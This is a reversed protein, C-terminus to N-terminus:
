KASGTASSSGAAKAAQACAVLEPTLKALKDATTGPGELIAVISGLESGLCKAAAKEEARQTSSCSCTTALLLILLTRM